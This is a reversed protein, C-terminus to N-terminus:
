GLEEASEVPKKSGFTAPKAGDPNDGSTQPRQGKLLVGVAELACSTMEQAALLRRGLTELQAIEKETM